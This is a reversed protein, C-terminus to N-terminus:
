TSPRGVADQYLEALRAQVQANWTVIQKATYLELAYTLLRREEEVDGRARAVESVRRRIDAQLWLVEGRDIVTLSTQKAAAAADLNGSRPRSSRGRLPWWPSRCPKTPQRGSTPRM